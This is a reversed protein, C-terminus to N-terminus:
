RALPFSSTNPSPPYQLKRKGRRRTYILMLACLGVCALLGGVVGGVIPGFKSWPNSPAAPSSSSSVSPLSASPLFSASPVAFSSSLDPLSDQIQIEFRDITIQSQGKRTDNQNTLILKHIAFNDFSKFFILSQSNSSDSVFSNELCFVFLNKDAMMQVWLTLTRSILNIPIVTGTSAYQM